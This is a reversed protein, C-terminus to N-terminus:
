KAYANTAVVETWKLVNDNNDLLTFGYDTSLVGSQSDNYALSVKRLDLAVPLLLLKNTWYHNFLSGHVTPCRYNLARKDAQLTLCLHIISWLQWCESNKGGGPMFIPLCSTWKHHNEAVSCFHHIPSCSQHGDKILTCSASLIGICFYYFYSHIM